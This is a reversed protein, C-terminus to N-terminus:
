WITPLIMPTAANDFRGGADSRPGIATKLRGLGDYAYTWNRTDDGDSIIGTIQSAANRAYLQDMRATTGTVTQVSSLWGRLDDYVFTSTVDGSTGATGDGYTIALTQGADNCAIGSLLLNAVSSSSTAGTNLGSLRAAADYAYFFTPPTAASDPMIRTKVAGNPWYSTTLSREGAAGTGDIGVHVERSRRRFPVVAHRPSRVPVPSHKLVALAVKRLRRQNDPVNVTAYEPLM